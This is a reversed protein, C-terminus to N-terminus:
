ARTTGHPGISHKQFVARHPRQPCYEREQSEDLLTGRNHAFRWLEIARAVCDADDVVIMGGPAMLPWLWNLEDLVVVNTHQGDLFAFAIGQEQVSYQQGQAFWVFQPLVLAAVASPLPLLYHREFPALRRKAACYMESGYMSQATMTDGMGYPANGWPDIGIVITPQPAQSALLALAHSTHGERVGIEVLVRGSSEVLSRQAYGLLHRLAEPTHEASDDWAADVIADIQANHVAM